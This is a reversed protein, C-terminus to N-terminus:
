SDGLDRLVQVPRTTFAARASLPLARGTAAALNLLALHLRMAPSPDVARFDADGWVRGDAALRLYSASDVSQVGRGFLMEVVDPRGLGFVHLPLSPAASRVADVIARVLELDRARPVLGGIAIGDFPHRAPAAAYAGAAEADWAQVIGYLPLDRRRRNALAWLCNTLTRDM